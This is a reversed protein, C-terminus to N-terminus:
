QRREVSSPPPPRPLWRLEAGVGRAHRGYQPQPRHRRPRRRDQTESDGQGDPYHVYIERVGAAIAESRRGSVGALFGPPPPSDLFIAVTRNAPAGPFPNAAAVAAM